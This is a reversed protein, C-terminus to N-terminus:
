HPGAPGAPREIGVLRMGRSEGHDYFHLRITSAQASSPKQHVFIDLIGYRLPHDDPADPPALEAPRRIGVPLVICSREAHDPDPSFQLWGLEKELDEGGRFRMKYVVQAPNVVTEAIALDRFCLSQTTKGPTRRVLTFDDLPVYQTLYEAFIKRRREILIRYLTKEARPDDFKGTAVIAQLVEPTFRHLIRIMWLADRHTMRAFAPNRYGGRWESPVFHEYGFYGFIEADENIEVEHWPRPYAGLTILDVFIHEFDLYYSRGMRRNMQDSDWRSGFDDGFDLYYHRVFTRGDQETWVDLSNQERTDFHNLWAALLRAGRLERRDEHPIIDNPDDSRRGQYTFPGIPRGDVFRSASARLTGDKRRFASALVKDIDDRSIPVDEGVDNQATAEPDIEFIDADFYVVENCPTNYGAAHYIKSGITDAATARQPGRSGDFKLLYRRGDAAKIFFGPNAGNPKAAVVTWPGREPDLPEGVCSGRAAKEPSMPFRGIRNTFWSSNPVEDLANVNVAEGPLPFRSGESLPYLVIQDMGDAMLGSYYKSPRELVHNRDPDEWLPDALPFRRVEHACGATLLTALAINAAIKM